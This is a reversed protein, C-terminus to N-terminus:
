TVTVFCLYKYMLLLKESKSIFLFLHLVSEFNINGVLSTGSNIFIKILTPPLLM